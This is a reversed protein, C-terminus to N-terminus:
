RAASRPRSTTTAPAAHAGPRRRHRDRRDGRDHGDSTPVVVRDHQDLYFYGGGGFATFPSGRLAPRPPLPYEALVDLTRPDLLRLDVSALGVCVTLLRGARDFTM